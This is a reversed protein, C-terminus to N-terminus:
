QVSLAISWLEKHDNRQNNISPASQPPAKAALIQTTRVSDIMNSMRSTM